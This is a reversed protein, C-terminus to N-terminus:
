SFVWFNMNTIHCASSLLSVAPWVCYAPLEATFSPHHTFYHCAASPKMHCLLHPFKRHAPHVLTLTSTLFFMEPLIQSTHFYFNNKNILALPFTATQVFVHPTSLGCIVNKAGQIPQLGCLKSLHSLSLRYLSSMALPRLLSYPGTIM